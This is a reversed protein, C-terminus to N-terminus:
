RFPHFPAGFGQDSGTAAGDGLKIDSGSLSRLQAASLTAASIPEAFECGFLTGSAWVVKATTEGAHPLDIGIKEGATLGARAELLLGTASINHILVNAVIGSADATRAELRLEHRHERAPHLLEELHATIAM